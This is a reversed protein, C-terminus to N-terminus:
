NSPPLTATVSPDCSSHRPEPASRPWDSTAPWSRPAPLVMRRNALHLGTFLEVCRHYDPDKSFSAAILTSTDCVIVDVPRLQEGLLEESQAGIASGDGEVIGFWAPPRPRDKAPHQRRRVDALAEPVQDDPLDQVLRMLEDREGSM